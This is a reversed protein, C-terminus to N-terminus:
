TTTSTSGLPMKCFVCDNTSSIEVTTIEYWNEPKVKVSVTNALDDVQTIISSLTTSLTMEGQFVRVSLDTIKYSNGVSIQLIQQNWFTVDISGKTDAVTATAKLLDKIDTNKEPDIIKCTLSVQLM